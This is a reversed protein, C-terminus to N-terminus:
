DFYIEHVNFNAFSYTQKTIHIICPERENEKYESGKVLAIYLNRNIETYITLDDQLCLVISRGLSQYECLSLHYSYYFETFAILFSRAFIYLFCTFYVNNKPQIKAFITTNNLTHTTICIFADIFIMLICHMIYHLINSQM